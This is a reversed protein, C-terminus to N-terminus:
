LCNYKELMENYFVPNGLQPLMELMGDETMGRIITQIQKQATEKGLIIGQEIGQEIAQEKILQSLNCLDDIGGELKECMRMGFESELKKKKIEADLKNSFLIFMSNKSM